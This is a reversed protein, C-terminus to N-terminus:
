GKGVTSSVRTNLLSRAAAAVGSCSCARGPSLWALGPDRPNSRHHSAERRHGRAGVPHSLPRVPVSRDRGQPKGSVALLEDETQKGHLPDFRDGFGQPDILRVPGLHARYGATQQFLDGKIDNVVVSPVTAFIPRPRTIEPDRRRNLRGEEARCALGERWRMEYLVKRCAEETGFRERFEIESLGKVSCRLGEASAM